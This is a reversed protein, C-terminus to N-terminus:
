RARAPMEVMCTFRAVEGDDKRQVGGPGRSANKSKPMNEAWQEQGRMTARSIGTERAECAVLHPIIVSDPYLGAMETKM